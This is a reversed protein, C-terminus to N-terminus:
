LMVHLAEEDYVGLTLKIVKNTWRLKNRIEEKGAVLHITGLIGFIPRTVASPPIDKKVSLTVETSVRDIILVDDVGDDCAEVYFKETTIHLKLREYTTAAM